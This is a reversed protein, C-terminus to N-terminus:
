PRKKMFDTILYAILKGTQEMERENAPDPAAECIHLYRANRHNGMATVFRRAHNVSFGSPTMTSSPVGAIADCDVEIGFASKSVHILAHNLHYAFSKKQQVAIEEFTSYQIHHEYKKLKKFLAGSTYNEHLGFIYYKQLFGESFAYSFGNESHRRGRKRFDSHADFNVANLPRNLALACGKIIGYANNHGGGIVIPKKGSAVIKGIIYTVEKDIEEVLKGAKKLTENDDPNLTSFVALEKEVDLHGLVYLGNGNNLPNHQTNLLMTLTAEWASAAGKKGPNAQVGINEPIGLLVYEADSRRLHVSFDEPTAATCQVCEGYKKEGVCRKVYRTIDEPLYIKLEM